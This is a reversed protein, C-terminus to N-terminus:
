ASGREEGAGPQPRTAKWRAKDDGIIALVLSSRHRNRNRRAASGQTRADRAEVQGCREVVRSEALGLRDEMAMLDDGEGILMEVLRRQDGEGRAEALELVVDGAGEMVRAIGLQRHQRV